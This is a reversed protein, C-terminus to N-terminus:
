WCKKAMYLARPGAAGDITGTVAFSLKEYFPRAQFALTDLFVGRKARSM